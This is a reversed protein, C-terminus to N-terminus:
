SEMSDMRKFLWGGSAFHWLALTGLDSCGLCIAPKLRHDNLQQASQRLVVGQSPSWSPTTSRFMRGGKCWNADSGKSNRSGHGSGTRTAGCRQRKRNSAEMWDQLSARQSWGRRLVDECRITLPATLDGDIRSPAPNGLRVALMPATLVRSGPLKHAQVVGRECVYCPRM